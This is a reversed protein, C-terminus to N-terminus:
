VFFQHEATWMAFRFMLSANYIESNKIQKKSLIIRSLIDYNVNFYCIICVAVVIVEAESACGELGETEPVAGDVVVLGGDVVGSM